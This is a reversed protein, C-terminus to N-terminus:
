HRSMPLRQRRSAARGRRRGRLILGWGLVLAGLAALAAYRPSHWVASGVEKASRAAREPLSATGDGGALCSNLTTSLAAQYRNVFGTDLGAATLAATQATIDAATEYHLPSVQVLYHAADLIENDSFPTELALADLLRATADAASENSLATEISLAGGGRRPSVGGSIGYTYGLRERLELNLRSAFAGCMAHGGLKLATWDSHERGPTPIFAQVVTQAAQPLDVLV